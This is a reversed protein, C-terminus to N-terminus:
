ARIYFALNAQSHSITTPIGASAGGSVVGQPFLVNNTAGTAVTYDSVMGFSASMIAGRGLMSVTRNLATTATGISSNNTSWNWAIYYVGPTANINVPVTIPRVGSGNMQTVGATNSAVSYTTQTSGSSLSMLRSNATDNTLIMAWASWVQGYTNATASSSISQYIPFALQTGSIYEDLQIREVSISGNGPTSLLTLGDLGEYYSSITAVGATVTSGNLGFSIGNSNSFILQDSVNNSTTGASFNLAHQATITSGNLGFSVRNSNSFVVTQLNNSTTGASVNIAGGGGPAAVSLSLNIGSSNHTISGSINAGAFGTSTGALNHQVGVTASGAGTSLSLTINNGTSFAIRNVPNITTASDQVSFSSNTVTPVTYSGTITSGNLGFSIGNSNSLVFASLNNSTTGASVNINSITAANSLMATTLWAPHNLSLNLGSSNHTMSGSILNGGFGSSTGALNHSFGVTAHNAATSLTATINNGTSFAIRSVPNITTASDQVSFSSNTVTPVTYSGWISGNTNSFSFGNSNTFILTQFASSGGEASFAQNSQSTLANHSATITSGNLGFSVGNSNSFTVASMYNSTTGASLNINTLGAGGTLPNIFGQSM